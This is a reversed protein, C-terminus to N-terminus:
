VSLPVFVKNVDRHFKAFKKHANRHKRHQNSPKKIAHASAEEVESFRFMLIFQFSRLWQVKDSVSKREAKCNLITM